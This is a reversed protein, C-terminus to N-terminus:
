AESPVLNIVADALDDSFTDGLSVVPISDPLGALDPHGKPFSSVVAMPIGQSDSITQLANVLDIGSMGDLTASAIMMDPRTRVALRFAEFPDHATVVRYGSGRLENGVRRGITRSATVLLIEVDMATVESPDLPSYVPLSRILSRTDEESHGSGNSLTRGLVDIFVQVDELEKQALEPVQQLYDELRHATMGLAPYGFAEGHGKINHADRRLRLAVEAGPMEGEFWADVAVQMDGIRDRADELFEQRLQDLVQETKGDELTTM